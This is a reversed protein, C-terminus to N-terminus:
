RDRVSLALALYLDNPTAVRLPRGLACLLNDLFSQKLEAVSSGCHPGAVPEAPAPPSTQNTISM